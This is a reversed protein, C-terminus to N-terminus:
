VFSGQFHGYATVFYIRFDERYSSASPVEPSRFALETALMRMEEEEICGEFKMVIADWEDRAEHIIAELKTSKGKKSGSVVSPPPSRKRKAPNPTKEIDPKVASLSPLMGEAAEALRSKFPPPPSSSASSSLSPARALSLVCSVFPGIM